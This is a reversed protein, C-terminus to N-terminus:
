ADANGLLSHAIEAFKFFVNRSERLLRVTSQYNCLPWEGHPIPLLDDGKRFSM